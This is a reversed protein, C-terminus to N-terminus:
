RSDAVGHRLLRLRYGYALQAANRNGRIGARRRAREARIGGQKMDWYAEEDTVDPMVAFNFAPPPSATAWELSRGDWPDGTFDRLEARNRISTWFQAIQCAIGALIVVAGFAAIWLWPRWEAVNYTQMRRTMGLLGLVYLPMFALYFGVVWCWFARKGWTEDLRFGFAKPFWYEVGAFAGFM